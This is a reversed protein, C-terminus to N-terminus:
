KAKPLLDELCQSLNSFSFKFNKDLVKQNSVQCGKVLIESMEGLLIKLAFLPVNPLLIKRDLRNAILRNFNENTENGAIANYTGIWQNEISEVFLKALDEVHIWPMWQKGSGLNAGIFYKIPLVLQPLAGGNKALVVGIRLAASPIEPVAFVGKEWDKVVHALFDNGFPGNEDAKLQINQEYIGVASASIFYKLSSNKAGFKQWLFRTGLIRSDYIEQKVKKTWRQGAVSHGALHIIVETWNIAENDIYQSNIDWVFTKIKDSKKRSLHAVSHGKELLKKTIEKGILGNGGTILINM